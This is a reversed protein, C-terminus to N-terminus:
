NITLIRDRIIELMYIIKEKTYNKFEEMGHVAYTGIDYQGQILRETPLDIVNKDRLKFLKQPMKDKEELKVEKIRCLDNIFNEIILRSYVAAGIYYDKNALEFAQELLNSFLNAEYLHQADAVLGLTFEQKVYILVAYSKAIDEKPYEIPQRNESSPGTRVGWGGNSRIFNTYFPHSEGFFSRLLNACSLWWTHAKVFYNLDQNLPQIERVRRSQSVLESGEEVLQDLRNVFVNRNMSCLIHM